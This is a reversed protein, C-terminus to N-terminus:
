PWSGLARLLHQEELGLGKKLAALEKGVERSKEEGAKEDLDSRCVEGSLKQFIKWKRSEGEQYLIRAKQAQKGKEASLADKMRNLFEWAEGIEEDTSNETLCPIHLCGPPLDISPM